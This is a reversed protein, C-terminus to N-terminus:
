GRSSRTQATQSSIGFSSACVVVEEQGRRCGRIIQGRETRQYLFCSKNCSSSQGRAVGEDCSSCVPGYHSLACASGCGPLPGVACEIQGRHPGPPDSNFMMPFIARQMKSNDRKPRADPNAGEERRMLGDALRSAEM